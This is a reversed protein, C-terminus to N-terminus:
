TAEVLRGSPCIRHIDEIGSFAIQPIQFPEGREEIHIGFDELGIVQFDEIVAFEEGREILPQLEHPVSVAEGLSDKALLM